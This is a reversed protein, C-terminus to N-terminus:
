NPALMIRVHGVLTVPNEKCDAAFRTEGTQIVLERAGTTTLPCFVTVLGMEPVCCNKRNLWYGSHNRHVSLFLSVAVM